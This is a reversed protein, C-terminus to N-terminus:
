YFDSGRFILYSIVITVALLGIGFVVDSQIPLGFYHNYLFLYAPYLVGYKQPYIMVAGTFFLSTVIPLFTNRGIISILVGIIYGGAMATFIIFFSYSFVIFAGIDPFTSLTESTVAISSILSILLIIMIPFSFMEIFARARSSKLLIPYVISGEGTMKGWSLAAIAAGIVMSISSLDFLSSFFSKEFTYQHLSSINEERNDPNVKSYISQEGIIESDIFMIEGDLDEDLNYGEMDREDIDDLEGYFTTGFIFYLLLPAVVLTLLIYRNSSFFRYILGDKDLM